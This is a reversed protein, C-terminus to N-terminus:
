ILSGVIADDTKFCGRVKIQVLECRVKVISGGASIWGLVLLLIKRGFKDSLTGIFVSSIAVGILTCMPLFYTASNFGFPEISEFSDDHADHKCMIAFNPNLMKTNIASATIIFNVSWISYKRANEETSQRRM